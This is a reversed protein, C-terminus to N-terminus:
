AHVELRRPDLGIASALRTLRVATPPDVGLSELATDALVSAAPGDLVVRGGDLVVARTAITALLDTKQEAILISTGGAALRGVAEGVLRTGAPDLMATPEDLVLHRPGM